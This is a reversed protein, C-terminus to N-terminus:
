IGCEGNEIPKSESSEHCQHQDEDGRGEIFGIGPQRRNKTDQQNERGGIVAKCQQGEDGTRPQAVEEFQPSGRTFTPCIVRKLFRRQKSDERM